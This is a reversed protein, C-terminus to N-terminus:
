DHLSAFLAELDLEFDGLVPSASLKAPAVVNRPEQGPSFVTIIEAEPDIVWLLRVGSELYHSIRRTIRGPQDGPSLVEIAFDPMVEVPGQDDEAPALPQRERLTVSIDPLFVWEDPMFAHRLETDVHAEGTRELYTYLRAVLYTVIRSHRRGVMPKEYVEGDMLELYPPESREPQALFDKLSVRTKIAM